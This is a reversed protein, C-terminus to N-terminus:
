GFTRSTKETVRVKEDRKYFLSRKEYLHMMEKIFSVDRKYFFSMKEYQFTM